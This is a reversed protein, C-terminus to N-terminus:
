IAEEISNAYIIETKETSAEIVHKYKDIDLTQSSNNASLTEQNQKVATVKEVIWEKEATLSTGKSDSIDIEKKQTSTANVNPTEIINNSFGFAMLGGCGIITVISVGALVLKVPKKFLGPKSVEKDKYVIKEVAKRDDKIEISDYKTPENALYQAENETSAIDYIGLAYYKQKEDESFDGLLIPRIGDKKLNLM